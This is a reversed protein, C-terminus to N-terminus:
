IHRAKWRTIERCKGGMKRKKGESRLEERENESRVEEQREEGGQQMVTCLGIGHKM